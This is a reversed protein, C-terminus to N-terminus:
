IQNTGWFHRIRLLDILTNFLNSLARRQHRFCRNLAPKVFGTGAIQRVTREFRRHVACKPIEPCRVPCFFLVIERSFDTGREGGVVQLIAQFINSCRACFLAFGKGTAM